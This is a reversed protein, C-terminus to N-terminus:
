QGGEQEPQPGGLRKLLLDTLEKEVRRRVANEIIKGYDPAIEADSITGRVTFPISQGVLGDMTDCGGIPISGTLKGVLDYNVGQNALDLNGSGTVGLFASTAELDESRAIGERVRATGRLLSFPSRNPVDADPPPLKRTANYVRCLVYGVNFGEIAGDRLAFQVDGAASGVNDLVTSGFGTLKLQFSGTGAIRSEGRLAVLLPGLAIDTANGALSMTPKAPRADVSLAGEFRGGYLAARADSLEARGDGTQIRTSVDAFRLGALQLRGVRVQGAMNLANLTEAPVEVADRTAGNGAPAEDAAPPLYRDVDIADITLQFGYRPDAYDTVSFEGTIVSDDLNLRLDTFRGGDNTLEVQSAVTARRLAAADATQPVEQGFRVMLERPAFEATSLQGSWTPAATLSRGTLTGLLNLGLAQLRLDDLQLQRADPAYRFRTTIGLDGLEQPSLNAPLLDAFARSFAGSNFRPVRLEGSIAGGATVTVAGGATLNLTRLQPNLLQLNGAQYRFESTVDFTGLDGSSVGEPVPVDALALLDDWAVTQASVSGSVDPQAPFGEVRLTWDAAMGAVDTTLAPVALTQNNIDLDAQAWSASFTLEGPAAGPPDILTSRLQSDRLTISGAALSGELHGTFNGAARSNQRGDHLDFAVALARASFKDIATDVDATGTIKLQVNFQPEVSLLNLALDVDVPRGPQLTGTDLAVERAIYRVQDGDERWYITADDVRLGAIQISERGTEPTAPGPPAGAEARGLLDEWNGRGAGDRALNLLLGNLEVTDMEFRRELLPMLKVRVAASEVTAFSEPDIGPAHSLTLRGTTVGLWPFFSLELDGEIELQRGTRESVWSAAFDKYDNPDFLLYLTLAGALALGVLGALAFGIWKLM